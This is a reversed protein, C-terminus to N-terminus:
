VGFNSSTLINCCLVVVMLNRSSICWMMFVTVITLLSNTHCVPRVGSNWYRSAAPTSFSFCCYVAFRSVAPFSVVYCYPLTLAASIALFLSSRLTFCLFSNGLFCFAYYHTVTRSAAPLYAVISFSVAFVPHILISIERRYSKRYLYRNTALTLTLISNFTLSCESFNRRKNCVFKTQM